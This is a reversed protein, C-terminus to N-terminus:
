TEAASPIHASEEENAGETNEKSDGNLLPLVNVDSPSEGIQNNTSPGRHDDKPDHSAEGSEEREAISSTSEGSTRKPRIAHSASGTNRRPPSKPEVKEHVKQSSSQTPRMMRELFNGSSAANPALSARAKPKPKDPQRSNAPLSARATRSQKSLSDIRRSSPGSVNSQRSPSRTPVKAEEGDHKAASSTTAATAAAPLRAPRTPSKPRPKVFGTSSATAKDSPKSTSASTSGSNTTKSAAKAIPAKAVRKILDSARQSPKESQSAQTTTKANPASSSPLSDKPSKSPVPAKSPGNSSHAARNPFSKPTESPAPKNFRQDEARRSAVTDKSELSGSPKARAVPEDAKKPQVGNTNQRSKLDPQLPKNPQLKKDDGAPPGQPASVQKTTAQPTQSPRKRPPSNVKSEEGEFPSGKLITGLGTTTTAPTILSSRNGEVKRDAPKTGLPNSKSSNSGAEQGGELAKGSHNSEEAGLDSKSTLIKSEKVGDLAGDGAAPVNLSSSMHGSPEVAVFNTRVKSLPRIQEGPLSGAPSRGRSPPSTNNDQQGQEFKARLSAFGSTERSQSM